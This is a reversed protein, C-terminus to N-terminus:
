TWSHPLPFVRGTVRMAIHLLGISVCNCNSVLFPRYRKPLRCTSTALYHAQILTTRSVISHSDQKSPLPHEPRMFPPCNRSWSLSLWSKSFSKEGHLEVIRRPDLLTSHFPPIIINLPFPLNTRQKFATSQCKKQFPQLFSHIDNM